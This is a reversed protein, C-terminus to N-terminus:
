QHKQTAKYSEETKRYQTYDKEPHMQNTRELFSFLLRTCNALEHPDARSILKLRNTHM